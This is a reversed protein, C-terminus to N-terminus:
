EKTGFETAWKARFFAGFDNNLTAYQGEPPLNEATILVAETMDMGYVNVSNLYADPVLDVGRAWHQALQDITVMSAADLRMTAIADTEGKRISDLNVLDDLYGVVLPRNPFQMGPFRQAVLQGMVPVTYNATGLLADVDPFATLQSSVSQRADAIQNALDSVHEDVVSINTGELDRYLDDSREKGAWVQSFTSIVMTHPGDGREPLRKIIYAHLLDSMETELPAYQATFLDNPTTGGGMTIWPINSVKARTLQAMVPGSEIAVTVIADVNQALFSDACTAMKRPDGQSDCIITDWGLTEAGIRAGEAIRFAVEAQANLQLIGITRKELAVPPGAAAKGLASATQDQALAVGDGFSLAAMVVAATKMKM